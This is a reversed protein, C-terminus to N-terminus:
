RINATQEVPNIQKFMMVIALPNLFIESYKANLSHADCVVDDLDLWQMM